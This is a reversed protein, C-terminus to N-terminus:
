SQRLPIELIFQTGNPQVPNIWFRGGLSRTIHYAKTLGFGAGRTPLQEAVPSRYGFEIVHPLEAEAIGIGNDKVAFRLCDQNQVLDASIMSGAPSYKRANALLDRMVDQLVLPMFVTRSSPSEINFRIHYSGDDEGDPMENYRIRYRGHAHAEMAKFVQLYNTHLQTIEHNRWALPNDQRALIERTRVRIVAAVPQLAMLCRGIEYKEDASAEQGLGNLHRILNEMWADAAGVIELSREPDSLCSAFHGLEEVLPSLREPFKIKEELQLLEFLVVNLVNLVSHMALLSEEGTSFNQEVVCEM